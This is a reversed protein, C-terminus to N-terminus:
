FWEYTYAIRGLAWPGASIVVLTIGYRRWHSLTTPKGAITQGHFRFIDVYHLFILGVVVSFFTMDMVGPVTGKAVLAPCLFLVVNGIAKWSLRLLLPPGSM